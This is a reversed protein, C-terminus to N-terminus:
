KAMEFCDIILVVHFVLSRAMKKEMARTQLVAKAEDQKAQDLQTRMTSDVTVLPSNLPPREVPFHNRAAATPLLLVKTRAHFM